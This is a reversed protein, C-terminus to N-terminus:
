TKEKAQLLNLVALWFPLFLLLRWYVDAAPVLSLGAAMVIGLAAMALGFVLRKRSEKPGLNTVTV